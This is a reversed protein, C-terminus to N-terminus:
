EPFSHVAAHLNKINMNQAHPLNMICVCICSGCSSKTENEMKPKCTDTANWQQIQSHTHTVHTNTICCKTEHLKHVSVWIYTLQTGYRNFSAPPAQTICSFVHHHLTHLDFLIFIFIIKGTLPFIGTEIWLLVFLFLFFSLNTVIITKKM